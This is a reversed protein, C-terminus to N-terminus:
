RSFGIFYFFNIECINVLYINYLKWLKIFLEFFYFFLILEVIMKFSIGGMLFNVRIKVKVYGKWELYINM